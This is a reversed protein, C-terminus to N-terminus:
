LSYAGHRRHIGQASVLCIRSEEITMFVAHRDIHQVQKLNLFFRRVILVRVADAASPRHASRLAKPALTVHIRPRFANLRHKATLHGGEQNARARPIPRPRM